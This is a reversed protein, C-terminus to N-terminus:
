PTFRRISGGGSVTMYIAGRYAGSVRSGGGPLNQGPQGGEVGTFAMGYHRGPVGSHAYVVGNIKTAIQQAISDLGTGANCGRVIVTPTGGFVSSSFWGGAPLDSVTAANPGGTYGSTYFSNSGTSTQHVFLGQSNAHGYHVWSDIPGFAANYAFMAGILDSGSHVFYVVGGYPQTRAYYLAAQGFLEGGAKPNSEGVTIFVPKADKKVFASTVEHNVLHMFAATAAGNAFKGGSIATVTGGVTAATATRGLLQWGNGTGAKGFGLNENVYGSVPSLMAGAAAGIFGDKFNGGTAESLGGGVIGHGASQLGHYGAASAYKGAEWAASAL